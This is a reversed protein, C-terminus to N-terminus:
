LLAADNCQVRGVLHVGDAMRWGGQREASGIVGTLKLADGDQRRSRELRTHVLEAAPPLQPGVGRRAAPLQRSRPTEKLKLM